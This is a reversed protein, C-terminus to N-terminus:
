DPISGSCWVINLPMESALQFLSEFWLAFNARAVNTALMALIKSAAISKLYTWHGPKPCATLSRIYYWM